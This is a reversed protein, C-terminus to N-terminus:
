HTWYGSKVASASLDKAFKKSVCNNQKKRFKLKHVAVSFLHIGMESLLNIGSFTMKWVQILIPGLFIMNKRNSINKIFLIEKFIIVAKFFNLNQFKKKLSIKNKKERFRKM